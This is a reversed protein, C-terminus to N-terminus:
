SFFLNLDKERETIPNGLVPYTPIAGFELFLQVTDKISPFAEPPEEVYAPGGAKLIRNRILNQFLDENLIEEEKFEGLFKKLFIKRYKMESFSNNILEAIAQAIHRETVNGRPTLKIVDNFSLNLSSDIDKLLENVKETMLECRKRFAAKVTELLKKGPSDPKLSHVVGKGCLYTRGPNIPDNTREGNKKAEYHMAIIEISFAAKLGLIKCAEGFEKHGNVTYHDNIGLVELGANYGNWVLECPSRFYSFSENTHVHVNVGGCNKPVPLVGKKELSKLEKIAELRTLSQIKGDFNLEGKEPKGLIEILVRADEPLSKNDSVKM